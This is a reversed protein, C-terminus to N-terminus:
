LSRSFKEKKLLLIKQWDLSMFKSIGIPLQTGMNKNKLFHEGWSELTFLPQNLSVRNYSLGAEMKQGTPM